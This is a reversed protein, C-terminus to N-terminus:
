RMMFFDKQKEITKNQKKTGLTLSPLQYRSCSWVVFVSLVLFMSNTVVGFWKKEKIGKIAM